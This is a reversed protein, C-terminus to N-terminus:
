VHARGIKALVRCVAIAPLGTRARAFGAPLIRRLAPVALAAGAVALLTAWVPQSARIGTCFVGVGAAAGFARRRAGTTPAAVGSVDAWAQAAPRVGSPSM